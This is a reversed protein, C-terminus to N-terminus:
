VNNKLIINLLLINIFLACYLSYCMKPLSVIGMLIFITFNNLIYFYGKNYSQVNYCKVIINDYLTNEQLHINLHEEDRMKILYFVNKDLKTEIRFLSAIIPVSQISTNPIPYNFM